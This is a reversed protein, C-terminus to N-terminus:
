QGRADIHPTGGMEAILHDAESVADMVWLIYRMDVHISRTIEPMFLWDSAMSEYNGDFALGVIEGKRNLTPSGSNGGTIDLDTLFNVPVDGLEADLYGRTHHANAASLLAQPPDFPKEGTAKAVTQSLTTFPEYIDRDPRPRYGRVTGYTVRLTGNADPAIERDSIQRLLALYQPRLHLMKGALTEEREEKGALDTRLARALKMLPDPHAELEAMTTTELLKLRVETSELKTAAYVNEVATRIAERTPETAGLLVSMVAPPESVSSAMRVFATTLLEVENSRHYTRELRRQSEKAREWDREQFGPKREADPKPREEAMRVIRDVAPLLSSLRVVESLAQDLDRTARRETFVADLADFFGPDAEARLGAELRQREAAAGGQSLGELAGRTYKLANELGRQLSASRIAAEPDGTTRALAALYDECMRIRRPYYWDVREAAEAATYHRYTKGPYGVVFVLDGAALPESPLRLYHRPRYPTNNAHHERPQGDPGVYARYFAFDGTHRPWMWNDIEGGYNGVGRPPAYVLRVDKIRFREILLYRTGGDYSAVQCRLSPRDKECRALLEKQRTETMTYRARPDTVDELGARVEDTVDTLKQTVYVRSGPGNWREEARTNALFGDELLNHEPTSNYQLSGTVCHHNTVILGSPSVFSATCGGLHVVAGLPSALPDSLHTPDVALGLQQLKEAHEPTNLQAPVWMGGPNEFGATTAAAPQPPPMRPQCSLCLAVPLLERRFM